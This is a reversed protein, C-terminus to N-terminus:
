AEDVLIEQGFEFSNLNGKAAGRMLLKRGKKVEKRLQKRSLPNNNAMASAEHEDLDMDYTWERKVRKVSHRETHVASTSLSVEDSMTETSPEQVEDGSGETLELTSYLRKQPINPLRDDENM